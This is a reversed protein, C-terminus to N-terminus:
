FFFFFFFFFFGFVSHNPSVMVFYASIDELTISKGKDRERAREPIAAKGLFNYEIYNYLLLGATPLNVFLLEEARFTRRIV